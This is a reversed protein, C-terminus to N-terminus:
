PNQLPVISECNTTTEEGGRSSFLLFGSTNAKSFCLCPTQFISMYDLCAGFIGHVHCHRKVKVSLGCYQQWLDRWNMARPFLFFGGALVSRQHTTYERWPLLSALFQSLVKHHSCSSYPNEMALSPYTIADRSSELVLTVQLPQWLCERHAGDDRDGVWSLSVSRLEADPENVTSWSFCNQSYPLIM